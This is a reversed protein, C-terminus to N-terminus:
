SQNKVKDIKAVRFESENCEFIRALSPIQYEADQKTEFENCIGCMDDQWNGWKDLSEIKYM